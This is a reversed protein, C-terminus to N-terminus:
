QGVSPSPVIVVVVAVVVVVVVVISVDGLVAVGIGAAPFARLQRGHRHVGHARHQAPRGRVELGGDALGRAEVGPLLHLVVLVVHEALVVVLLAVSSVRAHFDRANERSRRKTTVTM